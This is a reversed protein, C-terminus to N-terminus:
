VTELEMKIFAINYEKKSLFLSRVKRNGSKQTRPFKVRVIIGLDERPAQYDPAYICVLREVLHLQNSLQSCFDEHGEM